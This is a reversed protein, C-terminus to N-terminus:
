RTPTAAKKLTALYEVLDVLEQTSMTLQLGDPMISTALKQRRTIESKKVKSSIGTQAKVTLEDATESTILGFFEDGNELEINWAEFGFSIGSSPDLISDYLADKGLKTGIESLQPGVETGKGNVVHCSACAATQSDFIERGRKADGTRKVLESVPPLPEANRTQPLPLIELTSKKIAPWPALNLESSATLKLDAPLKDEKALDLLFQAGDQARALVQVAAKRTPLPKSADQVIAKLKQQLEKEKTSGILHVVAPANTSELLLDLSAPGNEALALRFADSGSPENPHKLAYELLAASHGKLKFDRVIEVFQPTGRTKELVRLVASKLAPSSELDVGKLRNLAEIQVATQDDIKATQALVAALAAAASFLFLWTRV